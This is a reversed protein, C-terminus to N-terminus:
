GGAIKGGGRRNGIELSKSEAVQPESIPSAKAQMNLMGGGSM